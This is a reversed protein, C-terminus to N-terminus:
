NNDTITVTATTTTTAPIARVMKRLADLRMTVECRAWDVEILLEEGARDVKPVSSNDIIAGVTNWVHDCAKQFVRLAEGLEEDDDNNM